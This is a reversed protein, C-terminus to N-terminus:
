NIMKFFNFLKFVLIPLNKIEKIKIKTDSLSIDGKNSKVIKTVFQKKYYFGGFINIFKNIFIYNTYNLKEFYNIFYKKSYYFGRDLKLNKKEIKKFSLYLIKKINQTSQKIKELDYFFMHKKKNKIKIRGTFVPYGNDIKSNIYHWTYYTYFKNDLIEFGNTYVGRYDPIKSHHYNLSINFKKLLNKKFIKNGGCSILISNKKIKKNLFNDYDILKIKNKFTQNKFSNKKYKNILNLFNYYEKNFFFYVLRAIKNKLDLHNQNSTDIVYEIKLSKKKILNILAKLFIISIPSSNDGVFYLYYNKNYLQNKM